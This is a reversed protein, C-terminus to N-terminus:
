TGAMEGVVVTECCRRLLGELVEKVQVDATKAKLCNLATVLVVGKYFLNYAARDVRALTAAASFIPTPPSSHLSSHAPATIAPLSIATVLSSLVSLLRDPQLSIKLNAPLFGGEEQVEEMVQSAHLVQSAQSAQALLPEIPHTWALPSAFALPLCNAWSLFERTDASIFETCLGCCGAVVKM